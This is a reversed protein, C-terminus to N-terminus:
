GLPAAGLGSDRPFPPGALLRGAFGDIGVGVRGPMQELAKAVMAGRYSIEV